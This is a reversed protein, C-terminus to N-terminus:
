WALRRLLAGSAHRDGLGDRRGEHQQGSRGARRRVGRALNRLARQLVADGSGRAVGSQRAAALEAGQARLPTLPAGGSLLFRPARSHDRRIRSTASAAAATPPQAPARRAAAVLAEARRFPADSAVDSTSAPEIRNDPHM